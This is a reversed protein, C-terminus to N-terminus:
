ILSSTESGRKQMILGENKKFYPSKFHQTVISDRDSHTGMGGFKAASMLTNM